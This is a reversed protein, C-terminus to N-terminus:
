DTKWGLHSTQSPRNARTGPPQLPAFRAVLDAFDPFLVWAWAESLPARISLFLFVQNRQTVSIRWFVRKPTAVITMLETLPASLPIQGHSQKGTRTDLWCTEQEEGGFHVVQQLQVLGSSAVLSFWYMMFVVAIHATADGLLSM